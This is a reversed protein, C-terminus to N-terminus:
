KNITEGYITTEQGTALDSPFRNRVAGFSSLLSTLATYNCHLYSLLFLFPVLIRFQLLFLRQAHTKGLSQRAM